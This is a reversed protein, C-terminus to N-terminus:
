PFIKLLKLLTKKLVFFSSSFNKLNNYLHSKDSSYSYISSVSSPYSFPMKNLDNMVIKDFGRSYGEIAMAGSGAFLDLLVGGSFYQGLLNYIAMRVKDQTERTTDLNTMEIVRHRLEGATIRM